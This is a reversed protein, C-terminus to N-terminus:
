SFKIDPYIYFIKNPQLICNGTLFDADRDGLMESLDIEEVSAVVRFIDKCIRELYGMDVMIKPIIVFDEWKGRESKVLYLFGKRRGRTVM